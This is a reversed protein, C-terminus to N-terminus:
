IVGFVLVAVGIFFMILDVFTNVIFQFIFIVVWLLDWIASLFRLGSLLTPASLDLIPKIHSRLPSLSNIFDNKWNLGSNEILKALTLASDVPNINSVNIIISTFIFMFVFVIFWKGVLDFLIGWSKLQLTNWNFGYKMKMLQNRKSNVQMWSVPESKVINVSPKVYSKKKKIFRLNNMQIVRRQSLPMTTRSGVVGSWSGDNHKSIRLLRYKSM